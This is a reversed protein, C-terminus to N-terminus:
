IVDFLFQLLCVSAFAFGIGITFGLILQKQAKKYSLIKLKQVHIEADLLDNKIKGLTVLADEYRGDIIQKIAVELKNRTNLNHQM